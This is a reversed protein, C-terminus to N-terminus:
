HRDSCNGLRLLEGIRAKANCYLFLYHRRKGVQESILFKQRRTVPMLTSIVSQVSNTLWIIDDVDLINSDISFHGTAEAIYQRLMETLDLDTLLWTKVEPRDPLPPQDYILRDLMAQFFILALKRYEAQAEKLNLTCSASIKPLELTLNHIVDPLIRDRVM